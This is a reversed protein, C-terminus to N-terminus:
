SLLSVLATASRGSTAINAVHGFLLDFRNEIADQSPRGFPLLVGRVHEQPQFSLFAFEVMGGIVFPLRDLLTDLLNTSTVNNGSVFHISEPLM